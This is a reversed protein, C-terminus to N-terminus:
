VAAELPALSGGMRRINGDRAKQERGDMYAMVIYGMITYPWLEIYTMATHAVVIYIMVKYAM